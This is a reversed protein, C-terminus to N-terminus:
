LFQTSYLLIEEWEKVIGRFESLIEEFFHPHSPISITQYLYLTSTSPEVKLVINEPWKLLGVLAISEVIKGLSPSDIDFLIPASLEWESQSFEIAVKRGEVVVTVKSDDVIRELVSLFNYAYSM